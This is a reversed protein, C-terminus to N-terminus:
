PRTVTDLTSAKSPSFDFSFFYKIVAMPSALQRHLFVFLELRGLLLDLGNSSLGNLGKLLNLLVINHEETPVEFSELEQPAIEDLVWNSHIHLVKIKLLNVFLHSSVFSGLGHSRFTIGRLISGRVSSIVIHSNICSGTIKKKNNIKIKNKTKPAQQAKPRKFELELM